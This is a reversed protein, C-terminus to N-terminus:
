PRAQSTAVASAGGGRGAGASRGVGSPLASAGRWMTQSISSLTARAGNSRIMPGSSVRVGCLSTPTAAAIAL